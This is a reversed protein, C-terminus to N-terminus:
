HKTTINVIEMLGVGGLFYLSKEWFTAGDHQIQIQPVYEIDIIKNRPSPFYGLMFYDEPPFFYKLHLTDKYPEFITDLVAVQVDQIVTKITDHVTIIKGPLYKYIISDLKIKLTDHVLVSDHSYETKNEPIIYRGFLIGGIVLVVVILIVAIASLNNM